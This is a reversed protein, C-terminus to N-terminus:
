VLDPLGSRQEDARREVYSHCGSVGWPGFREAEEFTARETAAAISWTSHTWLVAAGWGVRLRAGTLSTM